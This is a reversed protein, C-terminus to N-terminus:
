VLVFIMFWPLYLVSSRPLTPHVFDVAVCEYCEAQSVNFEWSYGSCPTIRRLLLSLLCTSSPHNGLRSCAQGQPTLPWPFCRTSLFILPWHWPQILRLRMHRSRLTVPILFSFGCLWVFPLSPGTEREPSTQYRSLWLPLLQTPGVTPPYFRSTGLDWELCKKWMFFSIKPFDTRLSEATLKSSWETNIWLCVDTDADTHPVEPPKSWFFNLNPIKLFFFM